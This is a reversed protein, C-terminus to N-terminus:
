IVFKIRAFGYFKIDKYIENYNKKDKEKNIESLAKYIYIKTEM